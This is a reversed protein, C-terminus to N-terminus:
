RKRYFQVDRARAMWKKEDTKEEAARAKRAAARQDGSLTEAGVVDARKALLKQLIKDKALADVHGREIEWQKMQDEASIRDIEANREAVPRKRMDAQKLARITWAGPQYPLGPISGDLRMVDVWTRLGVTVKFGEGLDVSASTRVRQWISWCGRKKVPTGDPLREVRWVRPDFWCDLPEVGPADPFARHLAARFAAPALLHKMGFAIQKAKM